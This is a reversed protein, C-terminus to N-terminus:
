EVGVRKSSKLLREGSAYVLGHYVLSLVALAIGLAHQGAAYWALAALGSIALEQILRLPEAAAGAWRFDVAGWFGFGLAPAGLGLALKGAANGGTHFGWYGLAVVVGAEVLVRLALNLRESPSV